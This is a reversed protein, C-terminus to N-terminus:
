RSASESIETHHPYLEVSQELYANIIHEYSGDLKMERLTIDFKDRLDTLNRKKSFAIYSPVSQLSPKLERIDVLQNMKRAIDYAGYKNSIIVPVRDALLKRMNQEGSNSLQLKTIIGDKVAQDWTTGYSVSNVGGITYNSLSALNGDYKITSDSRVFLSITQPMLIERSFDAFQERVPNKFATFVADAQGEEIYRIARAWPLIKINIPVDLRKFVEEIIDVVIGKVEGESEGRYEYPPYQLTVLEITQALCTSSIFFSLVLYFIKSM